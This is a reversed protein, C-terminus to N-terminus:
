DCGNCYQEAALPPRKTLGLTGADLPVGVHRVEIGPSVPTIRAEVLQRAVEESILKAIEKKDDESFAM